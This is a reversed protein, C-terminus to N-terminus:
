NQVFLFLTRQYVFICLWIYKSFGQYDWQLDLDIKYQKMEKEYM